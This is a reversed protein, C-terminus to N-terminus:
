SHHSDGNGIPNGIACVRLAPRRAARRGPERHDASIDVYRNFPLFYNHSTFNDFKFVHWKYTGPTWMVVRMDRDLLFIPALSSALVNVSLPLLALTSAVVSRDASDATSSTVRASSNEADDRAVLVENLEIDLDSYVGAHDDDLGCQRLFTGRNWLMLLSMGFVLLVVISITVVDRQPIPARERSPPARERQAVHPTPAPSSGDRGCLTCVPLCGTTDCQVLGFNAVGATGDTRNAVFNSEFTSNVLSIAGDEHVLVAGGITQPLLHPNLAMETFCVFM